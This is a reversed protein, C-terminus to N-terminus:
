CARIPAEYEQGLSRPNEYKKFYLRSTVLGMFIWFKLDILYSSSVMIHIFGLSLWIILMSYEDRDSKILSRVIMVFMVALVSAGMVIGFNAIVEVLINHAYIHPGGLVFRDGALGIGLFPNSSIARFLLGYLIDRGSLYLGERLFLSISRSNIGFNLFLNNFAGLIVDLFMYGTMGLLLIGLSTLIGQYKLKDGPRIIKFIVFLIICLIAGRSGLALILVLSIFAFISVQLSYKELLEDLFIVAPFLMYYSFSMSYLGVSVFGAFVGGGIALGILFIIYSSKKMAKKLITWDDISFSYVFAPLCMFFFPFILERLCHFNEPFVMFNLTFLSIGVAYVIVCKLLNRSLVVPLAYLFFLGVLAKSTLQITGAIDTGWMDFYILFLYQLPLVIFSSVLAISIKKDGQSSTNMTEM